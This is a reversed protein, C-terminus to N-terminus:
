NEPSYRRPWTWQFRQLKQIERDLCRVLVAMVLQAAATTTDAQNFLGTSCCMVDNVSIALFKFCALM